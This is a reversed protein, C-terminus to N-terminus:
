SKTPALTVLVTDKVPCKWKWKSSLRALRNGMLFYATMAHFSSSGFPYIARRIALPPRIVAAKKNEGQTRSAFVVTPSHVQAPWPVSFRSSWDALRAIRSSNL